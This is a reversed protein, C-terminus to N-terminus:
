CTCQRLVARQQRHNDRWEHSSTSSYSNCYHGAYFSSLLCLLCCVEARIMKSL